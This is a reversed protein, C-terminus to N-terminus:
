NEVFGDGAAAAGAVEMVFEFGKVAFEFGARAWSM